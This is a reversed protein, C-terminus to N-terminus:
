ARRLPLRHRFLLITAGYALGALIMAAALAAVDRYPGQLAMGGLGAGIWGGTGCALAALLAPGLAKLFQEEIALLARSKGTATLIAVNIWAGLATGLALGAVGLDM